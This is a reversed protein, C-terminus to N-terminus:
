DVLKRNDRTILCWGRDSPSCTLSSDLHSLSFARCNEALSITYWWIWAMTGHIDVFEKRRKITNSL